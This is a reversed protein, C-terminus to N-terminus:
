ALRLTPRNWSGVVKFGKKKAAYEEKRNQLIRYKMRLYYNYSYTRQAANYCDRNNARWRKMCKYKKYNDCKKSSGYDCEEAAAATSTM